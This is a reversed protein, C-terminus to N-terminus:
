FYEQWIKDLTEEGIEMGEGGEKGIWIVKKNEYNKFDSITYKGCTILKKNSKPKLKRCQKPHWDKSIKGAPFYGCTDMETLISISGNNEISHITGTVKHLEEDFFYATIRDGIKYNKM